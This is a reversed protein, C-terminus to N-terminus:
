INASPLQTCHPDCFLPSRKFSSATLLLFAAVQPYNENENQIQKQICGSDHRVDLFLLQIMDSWVLSYM